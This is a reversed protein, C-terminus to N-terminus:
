APAITARYRRAARRLAANPAPPNLLVRAFAHSEEGTLRIVQHEEVTKLAASRVSSIVFDSLTVGQLSAAQEFLRKLEPNVRAELRNTGNRPKTAMVTKM